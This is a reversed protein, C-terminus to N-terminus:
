RIVIINKNLTVTDSTNEAADKIFFSFALTDPESLSGPLPIASNNFTLLTYDLNIDINGKQKDPFSAIDFPITRVKGASVDRVNLRQRIIYISDDVDGEKDTFTLSITLGGGVGVVDPNASSVEIKPKTQFDDKNCAALLLGALAMLAFVKM